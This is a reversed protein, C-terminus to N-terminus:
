FSWRVGANWQWPTAVNGGYTKEVDFYLHTADSLNLNTGVGVEWWGGGTRTFNFVVRYLIPINSEPHQEPVAVTKNKICTSVSEIEEKTHVSVKEKSNCIGCKHDCDSACRKTLEHSLSKKWENKFFAKSTGLSVGDWPLSENM